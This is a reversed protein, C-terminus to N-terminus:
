KSIDKVLISVNIITVQRRNVAMICIDENFMQKPLSKQKVQCLEALLIQAEVGSTGDIPREGCVTGSSVFKLAYNYGNVLRVNGAAILQSQRYFLFSSLDLLNKHCRYNTCLSAIYNSRGLSAYLQCLRELLSTALGDEQPVKGLM